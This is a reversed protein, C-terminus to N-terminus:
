DGLKRAVEEIPITKKNAPDAVVRMVDAMDLLDEVQDNMRQHRVGAVMPELFPAALQIWKQSQKYAKLLKPMIEADLVGIGAREAELQYQRCLDEAQKLEKHTLM